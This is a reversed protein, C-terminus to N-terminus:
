NVGTRFAMAPLGANNILNPQAIENWGLRVQQPESIEPNSLVVKNDKIEATAPKFVGDQGAIEFWDPTKGDSTKLGEAHTFSLSVKDGSVKMSKYRPGAYELNKYGYQKALVLTSLRRGVVWKYPPHINNLDDVLDSIPVMETNSIALAATQAEWVEPLTESTHKIPDKRRTYYNPALTVYYFPLKSNGWTDRWSKILSKMKDAYHMGDHIIVNNEGQYWLFGKVAFPALPKVMSAYIQGVAVNNLKNTTEDIENKYVPDNLYAQMPTWFEIPTGGWSTGIMGVPVNLKDQLNKAFFYGAASFQALADGNCEQWGNTVVDTM